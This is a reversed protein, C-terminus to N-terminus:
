LKPLNLSGCSCISILSDAVTLFGLLLASGLLLAIFLLLSVLLFSDSNQLLKDNNTSYLITCIILILGKSRSWCCGYGCACSSSCRSWWLAAEFWRCAAEWLCYFNIMLTLSILSWQQEKAIWFNKLKSQKVELCRGRKHRFQLVSVAGQNQM